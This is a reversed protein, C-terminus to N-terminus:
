NSHIAFCLTIFWAFALLPFVCLVILGVFVIGLEEYNLIIILSLIIMLFTIFLLFGKSMEFVCVFIILIIHFIHIFILYKYLQNQSTDAIGNSNGNANGNLKSNMAM